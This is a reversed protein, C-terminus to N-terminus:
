VLSLQPSSPAPPPANVDVVRGDRIVIAGADRTGVRELWVRRKTEKAISEVAALGDDDLLAGDRIMIDSLGSNAAIALALAVRYQEASSAQALPVGRFRVGDKDVGLGEVPLSAAALRAKKADDIERLAANMATHKGDLESVDAALKTRRDRAARAAAVLNNHDSARRIERQIEDRRTEGGAAPTTRGVDEYTALATREADECATICVEQNEIEAQLEALKQSLVHLTNRAKSTAHRAEKHRARSRDLARLADDIRRSEDALAAVDIPADVQTEPAGALNAQAKKLDRGIETRRLFALEHDSDLEAIAGDTDILELLRARQEKAALRLFALPDLFRGGVIGDLITQPSKIAAGFKGRVELSTKGDTDVTRKISLPDGDDSPKLEIRVEAQPAGHRVPDAPMSKGRLASEMADLLSSKGAASPGGILMLYHDASPSITIERVRKYDSVHVATISYAPNTM